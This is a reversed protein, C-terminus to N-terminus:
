VNEPVFRLWAVCATMLLEGSRKGPLAQAGSGRWSFRTAAPAVPWAPAPWARAGTV